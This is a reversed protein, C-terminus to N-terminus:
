PAGQPPDALLKRGADVIKQRVRKELQRVREKSIGYKRGIEDLTEPSESLIRNDLIYLDRENLGARVGTIAQSLKRQAQDMEILEVQDDEAVAIVDGVKTNGEDSLPADLSLDRGQMRSRFNEVTQVDTNLSDAVYEVALRDRDADGAELLLRDKLVSQAGQLRYFMKRQLQTTGIKVMSWNKLIYDHIQARIWWVAYSILRYGRYPNFKMVAKILGVNGEQILDQIRFGYRRYENAVKVVFRLNSLVLKRYAEADEDDFWMRALEQEEERSLVEYRKMDRVYLTLDGVRSPVLMTEKRELAREEKEPVVEVDVLNQASDDLESEMIEPNLEDIELSVEDL